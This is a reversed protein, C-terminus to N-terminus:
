KECAISVASGWWVPRHQKFVVMLVRSLIALFQLM